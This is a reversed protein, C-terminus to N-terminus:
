GSHRALITQVAQNDAYIRWERVTQGAVVARIAFPMAWANEDRLEGKVRYTGRAMGFAVVIDDHALTSEVQLSYDPFMNFYHAWGGRMLERGEFRQGTSDIFVHDQSMLDALPAVSHANIRRVFELVVQRPELSTM